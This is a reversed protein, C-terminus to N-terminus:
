ASAPAAEDRGGVDSTCYRDRRATLDGVVAKRFKKDEGGGQERIAARYDEVDLAEFRMRVPQFFRPFRSHDPIHIHHLGQSYALLMKGDPIAEILDAIGGRVLLPRGKSDLGNARKMHGEPLIIVMSRPDVSEMVKKWTQDRERSISVVNGAIQRWFAGIFPRDLTKSAIPVLGYRAMRWLFTNPVIGAFVFEFLSTHNLIAILRYDQWPREPTEGVWQAEHSYFCRSFLKLALLFWYIIWYRM